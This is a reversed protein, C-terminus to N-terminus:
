RTFHSRAQLVGAELQEDRPRAANMEFPIWIFFLDLLPPLTENVIRISFYTTGWVICVVGWAGWVLAM